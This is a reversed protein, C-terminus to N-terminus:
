ASPTSPARTTDQGAAPYPATALTVLAACVAAV